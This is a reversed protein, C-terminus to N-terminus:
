MVQGFDNSVYVDGTAPSSIPAVAVASAVSSSSQDSLFETLRITFNGGVNYTHPLSQSSSISSSGTGDGFDIKLGTVADPNCTPTATVTLAATGSTPTVDLSCPPGTVRVVATAINNALNPDSEIGSVNATANITGSSSPLMTFTASAAQGNAALNGLPCSINTDPGNIASTCTNPFLSVVTSNPILATLTVGNADLPGANSVNLSYTVNAGLQVPSPATMTVGLDAGGSLAQGFVAMGGIGQTFVGLPGSTGLGTSYGEGNMVAGSQLNFQYLTGTAEDNTWFSQGDPDLNLNQFIPESSPPAYTRLIKGQQDIRVIRDSDAVLLTDDPLERLAFAGHLTNIIDPHQVQEGLDYVRVAPGGTTYAVTDSSDLLEVWSVRDFSFFDPFAPFFTASPPTASTAGQPIQLFTPLTLGDGAFGPQGVLLDGSPQAHVVLSWPSRYGTGFLVPGTGNVAFQEVLSSSSDALYLSGAADFTLGQGQNGNDGSSLVQVTKGTKPDIVFVMGFDTSLFVQGKAFQQAPGTFVAGVSVPQGPLFISCTNLNYPLCEHGLWGVFTSTSDGAATLQATQQEAPYQVTCNKPISATGNM